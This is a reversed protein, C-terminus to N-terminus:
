GGLSNLIIKGTLPEDTYTVHGQLWANQLQENLCSFPCDSATKGDIAAIIGNRVAQKEAHSMEDLTQFKMNEPEKTTEIYTAFGDEDVGIFKMPETNFM